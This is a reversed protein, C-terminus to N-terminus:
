VGPGFDLPLIDEDPELPHLKELNPYFYRGTVNDSHPLTPSDSSRFPNSRDIITGGKPPRQDNKLADMLDMNWAMEKELGDPRYTKDKGHRVMISEGAETFVDHRPTGDLGTPWAMRLVPGKCRPRKYFISEKTFLVVHLRQLLADADKLSVNDKPNKKPYSGDLLEVFASYDVYGKGHLTRTKIRKEFEENYPNTTYCRWKGQAFSSGGWRAWLLADAESPDGFAKCTPWDMSQMDIDDGIAPRYISGPELRRFDVHKAQTISQELDTRGDVLINHASIVFGMVRAAQTKGRRTEGCLWAGYVKHDSLIPIVIEDLINPHIARLFLTCDTLTRAGTASKLKNALVERFRSEQWGFVPSAPTFNCQLDAWIHQESNKNTMPGRKLIYEYGKQRNLVDQSTANSRASAPLKPEVPQEARPLTKADDDRKKREDERKKHMCHQGPVRELMYHM